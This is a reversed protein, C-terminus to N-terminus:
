REAGSVHEAGWDGSGLWVSGGRLLLWLHSFSILPLLVNLIFCVCIMKCSLSDLRGEKTSSQGILIIRVIRVIPLMDKHNFMKKGPPRFSTECNLFSIDDLAVTNNGKSSFWLQFIGVIGNMVQVDVCGIDLYILINQILGM